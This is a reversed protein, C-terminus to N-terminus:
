ELAAPEGFCARQLARLGDVAHEGWHNDFHFRWDWIADRHLGQDFGLLGRKVDAYIDLFDDTLSGAVKEEDVYPDYIEWYIDYPGFGPWGPPRIADDLLEESEPEVLPLYTAAAVLQALLRRGLALREPLEFASAQEVFECLSRVVEVFSALSEMEDPESMKWGQRLRPAAPVSKTKKPSCASKTEKTM